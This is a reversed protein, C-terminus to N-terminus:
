QAVGAFVRFFMRSGACEAVNDKLKLSTGKLVKNMNSGIEKGQKGRKSTM